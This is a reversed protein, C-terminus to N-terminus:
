AWRSSSDSIERRLDPVKHERPESGGGRGAESGSGLKRNGRMNARAKAERREQGPGGESGEGAELVCVRMRACVGRGGERARGRLEEQKLRGRRARERAGNRLPHILADRRVRPSTPRVYFTAPAQALSGRV